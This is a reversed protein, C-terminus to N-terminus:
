FALVFLKGVFDGFLPQLFFHLLGSSNRLILPLNRLIEHRFLLRIHRIERFPLSRPPLASVM